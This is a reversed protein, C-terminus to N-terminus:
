KKSREQLQYLINAAFLVTEKTSDNELTVELSQGVLFRGNILAQQKNTFQPDNMDKNFPAYLVGEKKVFKGKNIRSLMGKPYNSNPPTTIIPVSWAENAEQSIANFGKVKGREQNAVFRVQSKYQVGYFNNYVDNDNHRYIKGDRFTFIFLNLSSMMEPSYSYFTTWRNRPESFALTSVRSENIKKVVNAVTALKIQLEVLTFLIIM